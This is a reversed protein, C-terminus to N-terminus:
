PKTSFCGETITQNGGAAIALVEFLYDTGPELFEAPVTIQTASGPLHVDFVQDSEVIVEYGVITIPQGNIGETVPNWGIVAPIAVNKACKSGGSVPETITPGKPIRHNFTATGLLPTGDPAVGVFRYKGAPFRAFFKSLPLEALTPEASEVFMESAGGQNLLRGKAQVSYVKDGAPSYIDISKAGESDIFFQIGIDQASSNFEIIMRSDELPTAAATLVAVAFLQLGVAALLALISTRAGRRRGASSRGEVSQIPM